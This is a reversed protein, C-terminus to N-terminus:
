GGYGQPGSSGRGWSGWFGFDGPAGTPPAGFAYRRFPGMIIAGATQAANVKHQLLAAAYAATWGGKGLLTARAAFVGRLDVSSGGDRVSIARQAAVSAAGRDIISAAKLCVLNAFSDDRSADLTPDPSLKQDSVSVKYVAFSVDDAKVQFASAALTTVLADDTYLTSDMDAVLVRLLIPLEDDWAM